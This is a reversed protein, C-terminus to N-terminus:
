FPRGKPDNRGSGPHCLRGSPKPPHFYVRDSLVHFFSHSQIQHYHLPGLFSGLIGPLLSVGPNSPFLGQLQLLRPRFPCRIGFYAFLM